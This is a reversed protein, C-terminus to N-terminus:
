HRGDIIESFAIETRNLSLKIGPKKNGPLYTVIIGTNLSGERETLITSSFVVSNFNWGGEVGFLWQKQANVNQHLVLILGIFLIYRM